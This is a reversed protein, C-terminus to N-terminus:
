AARALGNKLKRAVGRVSEDAYRSVFDVLHHRESVSLTDTRTMLTELLRKGFRDPKLVIGEERADAAVECAAIILGFSNSPLGSRALASRLGAGRRAYMLEQMRQPSTGSLHELLIGVARVQGTCCARMILAPTVLNKEALVRALQPAERPSTGELMALIAGDEVDDVMDMSDRQEAWEFGAVYQKMRGAVRRMQTVRVDTPLDPRALLVDMIAPELSFREYLRRLENDSLEVVPNKLLETVAKSQGKTLIYGIVDKTLDPRRAVTEQRADDGVKLIALMRPADVGVASRLFDVAIEDDSAVLAFVIEANLSPVDKLENCLVSRVSNDSDAALKLIVPVVQERELLPSKPDRLLAAIQVALLKRADESGEAVVQELFATDLGIMKTNM